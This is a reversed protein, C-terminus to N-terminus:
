DDDVTMVEPDIPFPGALLAFAKTADGAPVLDLEAEHPAKGLTDPLARMTTAAFDLTIQGADDDVTIELDDRTFHLLPDGPTDFYHRMRFEVGFGTLPVPVGGVKYTVRKTWRSGQRGGWASGPDGPTV